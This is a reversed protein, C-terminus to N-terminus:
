PIGDLDRSSHTLEHREFQPGNVDMMVGDLLAEVDIHLHGIHVNHTLSSCLSVMNSCILGDITFCAFTHSAGYGNMISHRSIRAPLCAKMAQNRAPLWEESALEAIVLRERITEAPILICAVLM